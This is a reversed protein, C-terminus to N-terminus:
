GAGPALNGGVAGITGAVHTGHDDQSGDFTTNDNGAFDWGRTDDVYGNGDDDVGNGAIEGPSTWINVALDPHSGVGEDVIGVYVNAAGVHGNAWAAAAGSGYQNAPSTAGGYMGWLSGNTFYPDNSTLGTTYIWNPEAFEVDEGQIGRVADAIALGPPIRVLELDRGDHSAVNELARANVRARANAKAAATAGPTYQVLMENPVFDYGPGAPQQATGSVAPLLLGVCVVLSAVSRLRSM